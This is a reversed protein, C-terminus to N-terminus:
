VFVHFVSKIFKFPFFRLMTPLSDWFSYLIFNIFELTYFYFITHLLCVCVLVLFCVIVVCQPFCTYCMYCLVLERFIYLYELDIKLLSFVCYSFPSLFWISLICVCVCVSVFVSCISKIFCKFIYKLSLLYVVNRVNWIPLCWFRPHLRRLSLILFYGSVQIIVLTIINICGWHLDLQLCLSFRM